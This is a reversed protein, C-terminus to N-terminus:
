TIHIVDISGKLTAIVIEVCWSAIRNVSRALRPEQHRGGDQYHRCLHARLGLPSVPSSMAAAVATTWSTPRWRSPALASSCTAGAPTSVPDTELERVVAELFDLTTSGSWLFDVGVQLSQAVRPDHVHRGRRPCPGKSSSSSRAHFFFQHLGSTLRRGHTGEAIQRWSNSRVMPSGGRTDM